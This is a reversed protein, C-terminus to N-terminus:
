SPDFKYNKQTGIREDLGGFFDNITGASMEAPVEFKSASQCAETCDMAEFSTRVKEVADKIVQIVFPMSERCVVDIHEPTLLGFQRLRLDNGMEGPMADAFIQIIPLTCFFSEMTSPFRVARKFEELNMVGDNNVDVTHFLTKVDDENMVIGIEKLVSAFQQNTLGSTGFHLLKRDYFKSIFEDNRRNIGSQIRGSVKGAFDNNDHDILIQDKRSILGSLTSELFEAEKLLAELSM